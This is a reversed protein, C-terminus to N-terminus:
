PKTVLRYIESASDAQEIIGTMTKRRKRLAEPNEAINGIHPSGDVLEVDVFSSDTFPHKVIFTFKENPEPDMMLLIHALNKIEGLDTKQEGKRKHDTRGPDPTSSSIGM